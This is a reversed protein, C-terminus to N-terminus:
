VHLVRKITRSKESIFGTGNAYSVFVMCHMMVQILGEAPHGLAAVAYYTGRFPPILPLFAGLVLASLFYYNSTKATKLLRSTVACLVALTFLFLLFVAVHIM